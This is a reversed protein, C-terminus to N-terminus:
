GVRDAGLHGARAYAVPIEGTDDGVILRHRQGARELRLQRWRRVDCEAAIVVGVVVFTPVVQHSQDFLMVDDDRLVQGVEVGAVFQKPLAEQDDIEISGPNKLFELM